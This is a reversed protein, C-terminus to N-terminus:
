AYGKWDQDCSSASSQMSVRWKSRNSLCKCKVIGWSEMVEWGDNCQAMELCCNVCRVHVNRSFIARLPSYLIPSSRASPKKKKWSLSIEFPSNEFDKHKKKLVRSISKSSLSYFAIWWFRFSRRWLAESVWRTQNSSLTSEWKRFDLLLTKVSWQHKNGFIKDMQEMMADNFYRFSGLWVHGSSLSSPLLISTAVIKTENKKAMVCM